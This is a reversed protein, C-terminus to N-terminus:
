RGTSTSVGAKKAAEKSYIDRGAIVNAKLVVQSKEEGDTVVDKARCEVLFGRSVYPSKECNSSSDEIM